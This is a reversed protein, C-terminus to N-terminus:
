NERAKPRALRRLKWIGAADIQQARSKTVGMIRGINEHTLGQGYRLLIAQRHRPPLQALLRSLRRRKDDLEDQEDPSLDERAPINNLLYDGDLAMDTAPIIKPKDFRSPDGFAELFIRSRIVRVAYTTFSFGRDPDFLDAARILALYGACEAEEPSLTGTRDKLRKVCWLVLPTNAEVLRNRADLADRHTMAAEAARSDDGSQEAWQLGDLAAAVLAAHSRPPPTKAVRKAM